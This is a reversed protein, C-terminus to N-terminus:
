AWEDDRRTDPYVVAPDEADIRVPVSAGPQVRALGLEYVYWREEVTRGEVGLSLVLEIGHRGNKRVGGNGSKAALVLASAPRASAMRDRKRAALKEGQRVAHRVLLVSLVVFLAVLGLELM